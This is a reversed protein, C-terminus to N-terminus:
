SSTHYRGGNRSIRLSTDSAASWADPLPVGELRLALVRDAWADAAREVAAM